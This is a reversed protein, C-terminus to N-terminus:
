IELTDRRSLVVVYQEMVLVPSGLPRAPQTSAAWLYRWPRYFNDVLYPRFGAEVFPQLARMISKNEGPWWGPTLEIIFEVDPRCIPLISKLGAIVDLETGEVDIKMMRFSRVEDPTLIEDLPASEVQSELAFQGRAMTTARDAAWDSRSYLSVTGRTAAAAMNVVRVNRRSKEIELNATLAAFNRPCPEVAVVRGSEEVLGSALVTFYGAHAGVDVFTDGPALARRVLATIDPEWIGLLYIWFQVSDPLTCVFREGWQTAIEARFPGVYATYIRLLISILTLVPLFAVAVIFKSILSPSKSRLQLARACARLASFCYHFFSTV